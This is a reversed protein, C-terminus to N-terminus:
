IHVGNAAAADVLARVVRLMDNFEAEAALAASGSGVGAVGKKLGGPGGPTVAASSAAQM